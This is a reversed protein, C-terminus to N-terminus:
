KRRRLEECFDFGSLFAELWMRLEGAPLRPSLEHNGGRYQIYMRPKGYANEVYTPLGTRNTIIRGLQELESRSARAM